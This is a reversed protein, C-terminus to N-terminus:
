LLANPLALSIQPFAILLGVAVVECALFWGCGRFITGLPLSDGAAGRVVYVQFGVPPTLLGIEVFKVILVGLWVPDLGLAKGLPVFVPITILMIGIPDLFMGLVLYAVAMAALLALPEGAWPAVADALAAGIGALALFRTFLIAGVAVFFIQATTTVAEKLSEGVGRWGLRRQVLALTLALAAGAAGAETPTLFGGYLGGLVGATLAALPWTRATTRWRLAGRRAGDDAVSPALGPDCRCRIVIMATYLTATLLGPLLGAMLLRAISVEAFVGYLVFMVSPPILAALTGASAVVGAALGRDYGHRLMEPVALRTMAASAALSSGSAAGFGAAALNASVALGGPVRALWLRAAAFLDAAMGSRTVLAGMVLFMPIATLEWNAAVQFPVAGLVSLAAGAGALHTFGGLAVIGLAAGVPMGAALLALLAAVSAVGLLAPEM